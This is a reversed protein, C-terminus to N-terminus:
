SVLLAVPDSTTLLWAALSYPRTLALQMYVLILNFKRNCSAHSMQMSASLKQCITANVEFPFMATSSTKRVLSFCTRAHELTLLKLWTVRDVIALKAKRLIDDKIM